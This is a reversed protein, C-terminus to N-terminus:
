GFLRRVTLVPKGSYGITSVTIGHSENMAHVIQNNGIYIGIHGYFCVLDGPQAESLSVGVGYARDAGADHPLGIGFHQYVAMVFGSCDAGNTLSSGGYVYPNGVFQLAFEAVAKGSALSYEAGANTSRAGKKATGTMTGKVVVEDQKESKVDMELVDESIVTGNVTTQRVTSSQEGDTGVQETNTTNIAIQDSEKEITEHKITEKQEVTETTLVMLVPSKGDKAKVIKKAAKKATVVKPVEQNDGVFAQEVTIVPDMEVEVHKAGDSTYAKEVEKIAKKAERESRVTALTKDGVKLQWYEDAAYVGSTAILATVLVLIEVLVIVVLKWRKGSKDVATDNGNILKM